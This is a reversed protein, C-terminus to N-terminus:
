KSQLEVGAVSDNPVADDAEDMPRESDFDHILQAVLEPREEPLLRGANPVRHLRANALAEVLREAVSDDLWEDFQSRVVLAPATIQDLAIEEVEVRRIARALAYLHAVGDRGVFPALYRGLLRAPMSEQPNAVSRELLRRIVPAAGTVSRAIRIACPWDASHACTRERCSMSPVATSSSWAIWESRARPLSVSHWQAEWTWGPSPPM